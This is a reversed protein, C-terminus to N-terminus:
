LRTGRNVRVFEALRPNQTGLREEAAAAAALADDVSRVIVILGAGALERQEPSLRGGQAKVELQLAFPGFAARMVLLDAVARDNSTGEGKRPVFWRLCWLCQVAKKPKGTVKVTYGCWRLADVIGQQVAAEPVRPPTLRFARAM